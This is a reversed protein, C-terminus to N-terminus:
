EMTTTTFEIGGVKSAVVNYVAAGILTFLFGVVGYLVPLLLLFFKSFAGAPMTFLMILVFPVSCVFYLAALVKASQLPSINTIQKKM